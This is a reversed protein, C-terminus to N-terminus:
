LKAKVARAEWEHAFGKFRGREWEEYVKRREGEDYKGLMEGWVGLQEMFGLNPGCVPRGECVQELAVDREFGFKWMLYAVCAAASRSKGMACHVFVGGGGQLAEDIFACTQAFHQLLDENPDDEIPIVLHVYDQSKLYESSEKLEYFDFDIVSLVHTVGAAKVPSNPQYLAYLGGIHLNGARPIRDIWGM